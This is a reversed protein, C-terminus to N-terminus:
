GNVINDTLIADALAQRPKPTGELQAIKLELEKIKAQLTNNEEVKAALAANLQEVKVEAESRPKAAGITDYARAEGSKISEVVISNSTGLRDKPPDIHQTVHVRMEISGKLFKLLEPTAKPVHHIKSYEFTPSFTTQQVAETTFTEGMFDYEVYAMECFVPLDAARKIELKYTWPKGSTLFDDESDVDRPPKGEDGENPGGLPTWKVELLGINNYPVAANKIDQMKEEDDTELNYILYEPWHTATGLHFDNDFMLYLPDHREPLNYDRGADIASRLKMMEDKLLSLKPLFEQPDILISLKPNSNEVSIKVRPIHDAGKELVVDFTMTVRGLLDVVQKAEKAKPLLDLISNDVSAMARQYDAENRNSKMESKENEWKEREEVIRKREEDLERDGGGGEGRSNILGDQFEEVADEASMPEGKGDEHGPWRFLMLQDGMALRDYIDIKTEQNPKLKKGNHYTDGKGAVVTVSTGDFRVRCHDRVVALSMLQIDGKSGFVTEEKKLIYMFRNSRFADEDLNTFYPTTNDPEESVFYIGRRQYEEKQKDQMGQSSGGSGDGEAYEKALDNQKEALKAQLEAIM